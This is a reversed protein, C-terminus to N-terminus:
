QAVVVTGTPLARLNALYRREAQPRSEGVACQINRDTGSADSQWPRETNRDGIRAEAAILGLETDTIPLTIWSRHTWAHDM